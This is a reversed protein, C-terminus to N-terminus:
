LRTESLGFIMVAFIWCNVVSWCNYVSRSCMVLVNIGVQTIFMQLRFVLKILSTTTDRAPYLACLCDIVAVMKDYLDFGCAKWM